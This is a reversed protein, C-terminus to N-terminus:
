KRWLARYFRQDLGANNTATFDISSTAPTFVAITAWDVLNTSSQIELPTNPLTTLSLKVQSPNHADIHVFGPQDPPLVSSLSISVTAVPGYAHGDWPKYTFSDAGQYDSKPLYTFHTGAGILRGFKPGKLIACKIRDGDADTVALDIVSAQGSILALTQDRAEPPNDPFVVDLTVAAPASDLEGDNVKFVLLDHGLYDSAPTYVLNPPEGTLTGTVPNTLIIYKLSDNEPDAAKLLFNTALNMSVAVIANSAVPATNQDTVKIKVLAEPSLDKGDSVQFLFKDEGVYSSEPTYTYNTQSGTLVGHVPIQRILFTLPDDDADSAKLTLPL